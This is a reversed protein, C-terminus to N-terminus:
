TTPAAQAMSRRSLGALCGILLAMAGWTAVGFWLGIEGLAAPVVGDLSLGTVVALGLTLKVITGSVGTLALRALCFAPLISSTFHPKSSMPSLLPMLLLIVSHELSERSPAHTTEMHRHRFLVVACLAVVALEGAYLVLNLTAMDHDSPLRPVTAAARWPWDTLSWRHVLGAVSQNFLMASAWVGPPRNADLLPTLFLRVWHELWTGGGIPRHVLDPLLNALIAVVPLWVAARISRRALLYPIWLLATCKMAAALGFYTAARLHRARGLQACGGILLAAIVLDTQQHSAANLMYRLSAALGLVCIWHERRDAAFPRELVGGGSLRWATRGIYAACAANVAFWALRNLWVPVAAFPVAMLAMFPPYAYGPYQRDYINGGSLLRAATAVYVEDWESHIRLVVPVLTILGAVMAFASYPYRLLLGVPWARAPRFVGPQTIKVEM